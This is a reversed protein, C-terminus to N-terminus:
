LLGYLYFQSGDVYNGNTLVFDIRNVAASNEWEIGLTNNIEHNSSADERSSQISSIQKNFTSLVYFPIIIRGIGCSNAPSSAAPMNGINSNDAGVITITSAAYASALTKRYNTATSDNNLFISLTDSTQAARTSRAIFLVELHNYITTISSFTVTTTGSPSSTALLVRDGSGSSGTVFVRVVSGSISADVGGGVFNFTTGTGLLVGEDQALVGVIGGGGGPSNVFELGTANSKVAVFKSGAGSYSSPTDILQTFTGSLPFYHNDLVQRQLNVNFFDRQEPEFALYGNSGGSAANIYVKVIFREPPPNSLPQIPGNYTYGTEDLTMRFAYLTTGFDEDVIATNGAYDKALSSTAVLQDDTGGFQYLLECYATMPHSGTQRTLSLLLTYEGRLLWSKPDYSSETAFVLALQNNGIVLSSSNIRTLADGPVFNLQYYTGSYPAYAGFHNVSGTYNSVLVSPYFTEQIGDAFGGGSSGTATIIFELGSADPKVVVIKNASGSYSNPTDTLALFSDDQIIGMYQRADYINAWTITQTGTVLRIIAGPIEEHVDISTPVYDTLAAAGTISASFETGLKVFPNGTDITIGVLLLKANASGTPRYQLLNATGTNGAYYWDSNAYYRYPAILVNNAGDTGSPFTMLPYFQEGHVFVLDGGGNNDPDFEHQSGHRPLYSSTTDWYSAYQQTDRSYIEYYTSGRVVLVPLDYVPSVIANHAQILESVNNNLRVYVFGPRNPVDVYQRGGIYIGLAGSYFKLTAETKSSFRKLQKRLQRKTM